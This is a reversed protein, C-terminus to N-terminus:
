RHLIPLTRVLCPSSTGRHSHLVTEQTVPPLAAEPTAQAIHRVYATHGMHGIDM